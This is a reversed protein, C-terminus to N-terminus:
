GALTELAQALEAAADDWDALRAAHRYGAQGLTRRRILAGDPEDQEDALLSRLAGALAVDDGPPVLLAADAPVTDPIAGAQTTVVPLGHAMAETLVMGHSEHWSPLVFVSSMAYLADIADQDGEGLLDIRDALGADRVLARVSRVFDPTRTLSGACVCTWPLDALQRLARVLVDQGKGPTVAAVCLLQPASGPMPGTAFPARDTGPVVTRILSPDVGAEELRAATFSSTVIVGGCAAIAKRELARALARQSPEIAVEDAVLSHVLALLRLGAGHVEVVEPAGRMALADIVVRAGDPIRALTEALAVEDRPGGTPVDSGLEHVAITWGRRRLGEVMRRDYITGGTRAELSGPVVLHLDPGTM